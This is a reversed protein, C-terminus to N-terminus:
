SAHCEGYLDPPVAVYGLSSVLIIFLVAAPWSFNVSHKLVLFLGAFSIFCTFALVVHCMVSIALPMTSVGPIGLRNVIITAVDFLFAALGVPFTLVIVKNCISVTDGPRCLRDSKIWWADVAIIVGPLLASVRRITNYVGLSRNLSKREPTREYDSSSSSSSSSTSSVSSSPSTLTSSATADSTDGSFM